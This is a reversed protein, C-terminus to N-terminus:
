CRNKATCSVLALKKLAPVPPDGQLSAFLVGLAIAILIQRLTLRTMVMERLNSAGEGTAIRGPATVTVGGFARVVAGQDQGPIARAAHNGREKGRGDARRDRPGVADGGPLLPARDREGAGRAPWRHRRPGRCRRGTAGSFSRKPPRAARAVPSPAASWSRTGSAGM